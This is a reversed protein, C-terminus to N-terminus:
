AEVESWDDGNRQLVDSADVVVGDIEDDVGENQLVEPSAPRSAPLLFTDINEVTVLHDETRSEIEQVTTTHPSSQVSSVLPDASPNQSSGPHLSEANPDDLSVGTVFFEQSTIEPTNSTDEVENCDHVSEAESAELVLVPPNLEPSAPPVEKDSALEGSHETSPEPQDVIIDKSLDARKAIEDEVASKVAELAGEVAKVVERRAERVESDGGSEISDLRELLSGLTNEYAHVSANNATHPILRSMDSAISSVSVADDSDLASTSYHDLTAPLQFESKLSNLETQIQQTSSLATTRARQALRLEL